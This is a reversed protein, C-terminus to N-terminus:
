SNSVPRRAKSPSVVESTIAATISRSGSKLANGADVGGENGRLDIVLDRVGRRTLDTVVSDGWRAADWKSNFIAWTPM